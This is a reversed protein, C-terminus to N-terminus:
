CARLSVPTGAKLAEHAPHETPILFHGGRPTIVEELTNIIPYDPQNEDTFVRYTVCPSPPYVQGFDRKVIAVDVANVPGDGNIDSGPDAAVFAVIVLAVGAAFMVAIIKHM